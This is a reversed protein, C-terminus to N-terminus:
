LEALFLSDNGLTKMAMGDITVEKPGESDPIDPIEFEVNPAVAAVMSGATQGVVVRLCGHTVGNSRAINILRTDEMYFAVQCKVERLDARGANGSAYTTGLEKNRMVTKNDMSFNCMIVPFANGDVYFNGILGTAPSGVTTFAAPKTQVGGGNSTNDSLQAGPGQFSLMVETSGDFTVTMQDAISGTVSQKYGGANYYKYVALSDTLLNALNYTVGALVTGPTDPSASITDFTVVAGALTKIRTVEFRVGSAVKVGIIDGVQLGTASTLTAGTASAGSAITTTLGASITHQSGFAAKILKAVDSPTGLTGSPQWMVQPLNWNGTPRGPLMQVIDPTGSKEPSARRNNKGTLQLSLHRIADTAALVDRPTVNFASEVKIYSQELAGTEITM